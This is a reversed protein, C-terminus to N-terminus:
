KSAPLACFWGHPAPSGDFAEREISYGNQSLFDRVGSVTDHIEVFLSPRFRRLTAVAGKLVDVEAGEVDIKIWDLRALGFGSVLDDITTTRVTSSGGSETIRCCDPAKETYWGREEGTKSWAALPSVTCNTVGNLELNRELQRRNIPDPELCIVRGSPGVTRATRITHWGVFAGVDLFVDGQRPAVWAVPEYAEMQLMYEMAAENQPCFWGNLPASWIVRGRLSFPFRYWHFSSHLWGGEPTKRVARVLGYSLKNCLIRATTPVTQRAVQASDHM